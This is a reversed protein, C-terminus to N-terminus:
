PMYSISRSPDFKFRIVVSSAIPRQSTYLLCAVYEEETADQLFGGWDDLRIDIYHVRSKDFLRTAYAPSASARTIGLYEGFMLLITLIAALVAAGECIIDIHRHAVMAKDRDRICM